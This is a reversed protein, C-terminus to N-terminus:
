SLTFPYHWTWGGDKGAKSTMIGRKERAIEPTKPHIGLQRALEITAGHIDRYHERTALSLNVVTGTRLIHVTPDKGVGELLNAWNVSQQFIPFPFDAELLNARIQVHPRSTSRAPDCPAQSKM